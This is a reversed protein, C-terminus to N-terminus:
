GTPANSFFIDPWGDPDYHILIVGGRMSEVIYKKSPDSTHTFTIGTSSTIDDLQPVPRGSCKTAKAGPPPPSPTPHGSQAAAINLALSAIALLRLTSSELLSCILRNGDQTM